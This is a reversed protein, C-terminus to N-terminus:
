ILNTALMLVTIASVVVGGVVIGCVFGMGFAYTQRLDEM